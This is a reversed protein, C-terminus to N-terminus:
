EQAAVVTSETEWTIYGFKLWLYSQENEVLEEELNRSFQGHMRKRKNERSHQGKNTKYQRYDTKICRATQLM